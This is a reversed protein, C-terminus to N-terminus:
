PNGAGLWKFFFCLKIDMNLQNSAISLAKLISVFYVAKNYNSKNLVNSIKAVRIKIMWNQQNLYQLYNPVGSPRWAPTCSPCCCGWSPPPGWPSTPPPPCPPSAPPTRCWPGAGPPVFVCPSGKLIISWKILIFLAYIIGAPVVKSFLSVNNIYLIFLAYYYMNPVSKLIISWKILKCHSKICTSFLRQFYYEM